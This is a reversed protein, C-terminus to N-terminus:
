ERKKILKMREIGSEIGTTYACVCHTPVSGEREREVFSFTLEIVLVSSKAM